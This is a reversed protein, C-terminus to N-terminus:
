SIDLTICLLSKFPNLPRLSKVNICNYKRFHIEDSIRYTIKNFSEWYNNFFIKFPKFGKSMINLSFCFNYDPKRFKIFTFASFFIVIRNSNQTVSFNFSYYSLRKNWVIRFKIIVSMKFGCRYVTQVSYNFYATLFGSDDDTLVAPVIRIEKIFVQVTNVRNFCNNFFM